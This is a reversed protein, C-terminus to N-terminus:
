PQSTSVAAGSRAAILSAAQFASLATESGDTAVVVSKVKKPLVPRVAEMESTIMEVATM